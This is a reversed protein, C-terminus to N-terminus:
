SGSPWIGRYGNVNKGGGWFYLNEYFNKFIFFDIKILWMISIYTGHDTM